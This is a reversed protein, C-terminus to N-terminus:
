DRMGEILHVLIMGGEIDVDLVFEKRAPIMIKGVVLIDHAPAALVDDVQGLVEGTETEVRLGILDRTLYEDPELQPRSDLAELYQWQLQRATEPDDVGSLKLYPRDKMWRIEELTVWNGRLQLRAGQAFRAPFDTLPEVKVHGKLGWVGVIQGIRILGM